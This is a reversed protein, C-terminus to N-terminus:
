DLNRLSGLQYDVLYCDVCESGGDYRAVGCIDAEAAAELPGESEETTWGWSGYPIKVPLSIIFV